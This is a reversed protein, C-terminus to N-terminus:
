KAGEPAPAEQAATRVPREVNHVLQVQVSREGSPQSAEMHKTCEKLIDVLLKDGSAVDTPDKDLRFVVNAYREAVTHEDLGHKRLAEGIPLRKGRRRRRKPTKEAPAAPTAKAGQKTEKNEDPARRAANGENRDSAARQQSTSRRSPPKSRSGEREQKSARRKSKSKTSM